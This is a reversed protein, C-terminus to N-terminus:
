KRRLPRLIEGNPMDHATGQFTMRVKHTNGVVIVPGKPSQPGNRGRLDGVVALILVPAVRDAFGAIVFGWEWAKGLKECSKAAKPLKGSRKGAAFGAKTM